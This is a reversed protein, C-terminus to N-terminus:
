LIKVINLGLILLLLVAVPIELHWLPQLQPQAWLAVDPDLLVLAAVRHLTVPAKLM